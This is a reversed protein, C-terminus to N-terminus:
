RRGDLYALVESPTLHKTLPGARVYFYEDNERRFFVPNPSKLCEVVVARQDGVSRVTTRTFQAVEGGLHNGILTNLHLLYKDENPFADNELGLAIGEDDIGIFLLGGSSNLFGAITKLCSNEMRKDPKKTHLNLRLTSKFEIEAGEGEAIKAVLETDALSRFGVSLKSELDRERHYAVLHTRVRAIVEEFQFPKSVYDVAGSELGRVKDEVDRRASLYIVVSDRTDASAKLKECTEYGSIGPMNIDLLILAPQAEAAILLAEEGSQAVLLEYGEAELAEYLVKLNTPNDDVLLIRDSTSSPSPFEM